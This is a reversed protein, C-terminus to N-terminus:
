VYELINSQLKKENLEKALEQANKLISESIMKDMEERNYYKKGNIIEM